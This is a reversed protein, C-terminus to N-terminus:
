SFHFTESTQFLFSVFSSSCFTLSFFFLINGISSSCVKNEADDENIPRNSKKDAM